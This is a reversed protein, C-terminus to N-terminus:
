KILKIIIKIKNENNDCYVKKLISECLEQIPGIVPLNAVVLLINQYRLNEKHYKWVFSELFILSTEQDPMHFFQCGQRNHMSGLLLCTQRLPIM